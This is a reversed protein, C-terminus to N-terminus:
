IEDCAEGEFRIRTQGDHTNLELASTCTAARLVYLKGNALQATVTSNTIREVDEMSLEPVLSVDGEIFPVRPNESYGHIGDQGPIMKRELSSPSVTFSGKVPYQVGDVTLFAIGAIRAM